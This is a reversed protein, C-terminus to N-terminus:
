ELTTVNSIHNTPVKAQIIHLTMEFHWHYMYLLVDVSMKCVVIEFVYELYVSVFNPQISQFTATQEPLDLEWYVLVAGNLTNTDFLNCAMVQVM